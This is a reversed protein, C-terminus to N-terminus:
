LVLKRIDSMVGALHVTFRAAIAGDIV